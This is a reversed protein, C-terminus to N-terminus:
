IDKIEEIEKIEKTLTMLSELKYSDINNKCFCKIIITIILLLILVSGISILIIAYTPFVKENENKPAPEFDDNGPNKISKIKIEEICIDKVCKKTYTNFYYGIDCYYPMCINSWTGYDNCQYGGHAHEDDDFKYCTNEDNNDYM